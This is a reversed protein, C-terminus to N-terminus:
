KKIKIERFFINKGKDPNTVYEMRWPAWLNNKM